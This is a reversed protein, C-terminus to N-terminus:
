QAAGCAMQVVFPVGEDHHYRNAWAHVFEDLEAVAQDFREPLIDLEEVIRLVGPQREVWKQMLEFYRATDEMLIGLREEQDVPSYHERTLAYFAIGCWSDVKTVTGSHLLCREIHEVMADSLPLVRDRPLHQQSRDYLQGILNQFQFGNIVQADPMTAPLRKELQAKEAKTLSNNAIRSSGPRWPYNELWMFPFQILYRPEQSGLMKLLKGESLAQQVEEVILRVRKPEIHHLQGTVRLNQRQELYTMYVTCKAATAAADLFAGHRYNQVRMAHAALQWLIQDMASPHLLKLLNPATTM